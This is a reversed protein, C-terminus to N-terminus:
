RTSVGIRAILALRIGISDTATIILTGPGPYTARGRVQIFLPDQAAAVTQIMGLGAANVVLTDEVRTDSTLLTMPFVITSAAGNTLNALSSAVFLTDLASIAVSKALTMVLLASDLDRQLIAGISADLKQPQAPFSVNASTGAPVVPPFPGLLEIKRSALPVYWDADWRPAFPVDNCAAAAFAALAGAVLAPRVTLRM